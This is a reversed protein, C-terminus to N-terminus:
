DNSCTLANVQVQTLLELAKHRYPPSIKNKFEEYMTTNNLTMLLYHRHDNECRILKEPMWLSPLYYGCTRKVAVLYDYVVNEADSKVQIAKDLINLQRDTRQVGNISSPLCM